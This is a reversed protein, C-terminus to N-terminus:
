IEKRLLPIVIVQGYIEFKVCKSARMSTWMNLCGKKGCLYISFNRSNLPKVYLDNLDEFKRGIIFINQCNAIFNEINIITGDKLCCYSDSKKLRM